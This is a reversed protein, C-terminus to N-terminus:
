KELGFVGEYPDDDPGSWDFDLLKPADADVAQETMQFMEDRQHDATDGFGWTTRLVNLTKEDASREEVLMGDETVHRLPKESASTSVRTVSDDHNTDIVGARILIRDGVGFAGGSDLVAQTRRTDYDEAKRRIGALTAAQKHSLIREYASRAWPDVRIWLRLRLIGYQLKSM